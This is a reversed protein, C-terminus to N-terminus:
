FTDLPFKGHATLLVAMLVLAETAVVPIETMIGLEMTQTVAFSPKLMNLINEYPWKIWSSTAFLEIEKKLQV